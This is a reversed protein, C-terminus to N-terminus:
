WKRAKFKRLSKSKKNKIPVILIYFIEKLVKSLSIKANHYWLFKGFVTINGENPYVLGLISKFTTSKGSGNQGILGTIQGRNVELSCDLFFDGYNKKLDKIKLM